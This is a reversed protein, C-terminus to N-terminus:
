LEADAAFSGVYYKRAGTASSTAVFSFKDVQVDQASVAGFGSSVGSVIVMTPIIRKNVKFPVSNLYNNGTTVDGTWTYDSGQTSKEYYRQCLALELMVLRPTWTQVFTSVFLGAEAVSLTDNAVFQSDSWIACMLNKSNSPITVTVSFSQWSTTVSKSQAATIIALNTGLTPDVTDAGYASVFTAPITDIAGANQLEILAMRITKSASAKMKIQFTVTKGRLSVSNIGELIQYIMLKGTNTIKKYTGFHQSTIGTEGLGDAQQYQLDANERSSRWRDASYKDQAVTTLTAPTQRQAFGFNGNIIYNTLQVTSLELTDRQASANADDILARGAATLPIEEGAGAGSTSRGLLKDTASFAISGAVHDADNLGTLAGHDTVGGPITVKTKGPENTVTVGAGVLDLYQQQPVDIGEDQIIHGDKETLALDTIAQDLEELPARIVSMNAPAGDAPPTHYNNTM